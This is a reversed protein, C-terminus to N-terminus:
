GNKEKQTPNPKKWITHILAISLLVVLSVIMMIGAPMWKYSNLFRVIFIISLLATTITGVMLGWSSGNLLSTGSAIIILGFILGSLLSIMSQAKIYGITGGMLLTLGYVLFLIATIKM